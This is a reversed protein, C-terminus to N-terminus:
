ATWIYIGVLPRKLLEFKPSILSMTIYMPSFLLIRSKETKRVRATDTGSVNVDKMDGLRKM